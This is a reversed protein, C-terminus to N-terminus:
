CSTFDGDGLAGRLMHFFSVRNVLLCMSCGFKLNKIHPEM